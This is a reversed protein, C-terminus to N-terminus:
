MRGKHRRVMQIIATHHFGGMLRGIAPYSLKPAHEIGYLSYVVRWEGGLFRIFNRALVALHDRAAIARQPKRQPNGILGLPGDYLYLIRKGFVGLFESWCGDPMEVYHCYRGRGSGAPRRVTFTPQM